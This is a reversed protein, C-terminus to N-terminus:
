DNFVDGMLQSLKDHSALLENKIEDLPRLVEPKYFIKNFNVEVGVTREELTYAKEVWKDLFDQINKSNTKEKFSFPITEYDTETKPALELHYAIHEEKTKTAKKYSAKLKMTGCGLSEEVGNSLTKILSESKTDFYYSEDNDCKVLITGEEGNFKENREKALAKLDGSDVLESLVVTEKHKSEDFLDVKAINEIKISKVVKDKNMPVFSKGSEDSHTLTIKQKNYYFSSKDMIKCNDTDVFNNLMNVIEVRNELNIECNKTGKNKKLKIFMKSADILAIKDKREEPKQKNIVWLYTTIGTNFFENTPLQILAELYDNEMVHKRIESEGSGADGSFLPSGNLVIVAKGDAALKYLAHQVFLLQGDGVSPYANYWSEGQSNVSEISEVDDKIEKWDVGYPPNAVIGQMEISGRDGTMKDEYLTNAQKIMSESRFRSEIKALAFLEDNLEQGYTEIILKPNLSKLHDEVGFLMNGGGCTMDYLNVIREKEEDKFYNAIIEANLHSIDEPTYHEGATDASIDAWKRKIHEELTTIDSNNYPVLDIAAWASYYGFLIKKGILKENFGSLNLYTKGDVNEIGLLYRTEPDFAMLYEQLQSEFSSIGAAVITELSWSDKIIKNNSGYKENLEFEEEIYQQIKEPSEGQHQEAVENKLRIIRSEVMRLAFIFMMYNPFESNKVGAGRLIDATKWIREANTLIDVKENKIPM